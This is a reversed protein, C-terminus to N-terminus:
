YRKDNGYCSTFLFGDMWKFFIFTYFYLAAAVSVFPFIGISAVKKM